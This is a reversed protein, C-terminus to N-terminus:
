WWVRALLEGGWVPGGLTMQRQLGFGFSLQAPLWEPSGAYDAGLRLLSDGTAARGFGLTPTILGRSRRAEIGYGLEANLTLDMDDRAWPQMAAPMPGQSWVLGMGGPRGLAPSLSASFGTGDPAAKIRLTLTGGLEEYDIYDSDDDETYDWLEMWRGRLEFDVRAGSRRLGTEAEYGAGSYGGRDYRGNLRVFPSLAGAGSLELGVRARDATSELYELSGEGEIELTATGADALVSLRVASNEALTSRLGAAALTMRLDGDHTIDQGVGRVNMAHGMGGGVTAWLEAGSGLAGKLYAYAAALETRLQGDGAAAGGFGYDAQGEGYSVSVGGLWRAGLRRDAGLYATRWDGEYRQAGDSGSFRQVDGTGWVTWRPLAPRGGSSPAGGQAQAGSSAAGGEPAQALVPTQGIGTTPASDTSQGNGQAISFAFSRNWLGAFAFGSPRSRSLQGGHSRLHYEQPPGTGLSGGSGPVTPYGTPYGTAFGLGTAFGHNARNSPSATVPGTAPLGFLGVLAALADAGSLSQLSSAATESAAMRAGIVGTAGSFLTRTLGDLSLDLADAEEDSLAKVTVAFTVSASGGPNTATVTIRAQGASEGQLRATGGPNATVTDSGGFSAVAANSSTYVYVLEQGTFAATADVEATAAGVVLTLDPLAGAVAPAAVVATRGEAAVWESDGDGLSRVRVEYATGVLLDGITTRTATGSHPHDMWRTEGLARYQVGYGGLRAGANQPATWTVELSTSSAASVTLGQPEGPPEEENTLAVTVEITDDVTPTDEAIGEADEGDTVEATFAYTSRAEFDLVAGDAVRIRGEGDIAFSEHEGGTSSLSFSPMDGDADTAAVRGLFTGAASNEAVTLTVSPGGEFEPATTVGTREATRGEAVTWESAGDGLSRVRVEYAAGALLDGITTRTATGSHPHDTWQPEGSARYQVGYGVLRTGEDEPATWTVELSTTSAASVTVGTPEGPPESVNSLTQTFQEVQSGAATRLPNAGQAYSVTVSQGAPVPPSVTLSLTSGEISVATVRYVQTQIAQLPSAVGFGTRAGAGALAAAGGVTVTFDEPDPVSQADLLEGFELTVTAGSVKGAAPPPAVGAADSGAESWDGTGEDNTARVRAEYAVGQTLGSITTATGTGDHSADTWASAGLARYQVDYDTVLPKGAPDPATWAVDASTASAVTVTPPAPADPPEDVDTVNITLSHTVEVSGDTVTVVAAYSPTAEHDLASGADVQVTIAGSSSDIDFVTDSTSDLTYSLEDDDADTATITAVAAGNDSNEAVDLSSPPSDFVPAENTIPVASPDDDDNVTVSASSPTGVSYGAGSAVQVTVSGNPEITLDGQTTVSYSATIAGANITVTKSGEDGSALFDSDSADSVTLNVTLNAPPAGDATVTFAAATGEIVTSGGSITITPDNTDGSGAASWDSDGEANSAQVQVEYATSASLSSIRTDTGAGTFDHATWDSAGSARYRVAYDTIPPKGTMDPATWAVDVSIASVATVTPPAPADPPELEDNVSITVDHTAANNNSDQATVKATHRATDEHDLVSGANLRVTIAGSSSDIDFVADSTSDLSYTVTDGDADTAVITTVPTGDGSNEAVSATTPQGTFVPSHDDDNVTVSASNTSGKENHVYDDGESVSVTVPGNPEDTHDDQTPVSYSATTAGANITVTKSGEDGSAVFDSGSADSVTLNITLSEDSAEDARVTFTAATGETVPSTGAAINITRFNEGGTSTGIRSWGSAGEANKAKVRVWYESGASLNSITTSTGTGTFNHATWNDTGTAVYEVDYGNIPPKGTNTPATWNVTMSTPSARAVTPRAPRSPPELVDTVSITVGHTASNVGDSATVTATYEDEDEHDLASGDDVQVTITGTSSNIDFVKDSTADLSYTITDSTDADTAVVTTVGKNDASNEVVSATTPQMTFVPTHDDDNVTVSASNTTGVMYGTGSAVRVTVTGNPEDTRDGQTTVSYGATTAGANITVSKSGEDGSAVFDSGSADSVTLNVTLNALPGEDATVTFAAATGETVASGGTITITPDNTDGNGATSWDSDGEANKAMVQVQYTTSVRLSSITTSTNTGTFSHSTWNTAGSIRFQVDYDNIDPKGTNTPATWSVTVSTASAGMVTPTAPAAPPELDDTVSITVNHTASNVGDSATVTATYEDEDEHDLASGDDVQVTITGTSSNIDFVKDSTADLSYTITDSTDADTAVVTTVGKNDASNEVVSATTPQMTFVPTHDDDNVTVSASSTTGVSYGTGSAVRVTVSGDTEDTRDNRTTVSYSATTAGGNITVSKSGEDGSAVFDGGSADSVTLNVTLNAGPAGDATVTFAAATGETVASGGSITITPDNTDGSGTVSWGSSGEANKAMVQVQYTTGSSLSSITTSTGTGTFAHAIWATEGSARYQVEYGSIDPKGATSPATWGVSVSTASAGSVTPAAPAAPPELKDTVSITVDHTASDTGDSAKVTATYSSKSEFDLDAGSQVTIAGSSGNIDFVADSTSDLSYTLTDGDADTATITVVDTNAGSNEAVSATTPQSTFVPANNTAPPDDDDNVTRTASSPSGVTYGTGSKVTVTVSGNSEHTTDNQTPVTVVAFTSGGSITRTKNGEDTAAVFDSGSAEEVTVNVTIDASPAPTPTLTFTVNGGETVAGSGSITITPVTQSAAPTAFTAM